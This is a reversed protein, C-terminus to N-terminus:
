NNQNFENYLDPLIAALHNMEESCHTMLDKAQQEPLKVIKQLVKSVIKGLFNDSRIAIFKGGMWFRSRMEAGGDTKRIQHVLWGFDLPYDVYGVRACVYVVKAKDAIQSDSFGFELPSKFQIAAKELKKGIYEEIISTRNVYAVEDRGDAWVVSQHAKPHWLKYRSDECSHWGFWWDWIEPSVNPMPTLVAVHISGDNNLLYGNELDLYGKNHMDRVNELQLGNKSSKKIAKEVLTPIPRIIEDYFKAYPLAFDTSQYGIYKKTNKM